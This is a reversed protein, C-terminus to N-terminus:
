TNFINVAKNRIRFLTPITKDVMEFDYKANFESSQLYDQLYGLANEQVQIVIADSTNKLYHECITNVSSIVKSGELKEQAINDRKSNAVDIMTKLFFQM